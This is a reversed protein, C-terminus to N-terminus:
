SPSSRRSTRTSPCRSSRSAARTTAHAAEVAARYLYPVLRQHLTAYRRFADLTAPTTWVDVATRCKDGLHDRMIPHLAGLQAWRIWLEHDAEGGLGCGFYGGIDPAWFPIGSLSGNLSARLAAPMGERPSWSFVNDCPWAVPTYRQSGAFGTRMFSVYDPRAEIAALRTARAYAVPYSNRAAPGTTGSGYVGDEPADDGGDQMWGDFGLDVLISTTL